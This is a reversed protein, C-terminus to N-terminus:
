NYQGNRLNVGTYLFAKLSCIFDTWGQTQQMAKAVEDQTLEYSSETIKIHTQTKGEATLYIDVIATKGSGSWEFSIHRNTVVKLIKIDLSVGYDKFEWTVIAGETIKESANSVFYCRIKKPDVIAEFVAETPKQVTDKIKVQISM